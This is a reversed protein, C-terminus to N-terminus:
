KEAEAFAAEIEAMLPHILGVKRFGAFDDLAAQRWTRKDDAALPEDRHSLYLARAENTRDLFMLAHARNGEVMLNTPDLEHAREAAALARSWTVEALALATKAGPAGASKTEETEILTAAKSSWDHAQVYDQAVGQGNAYLATLNYM